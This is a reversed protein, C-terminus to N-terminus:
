LKVLFGISQNLDLLEIKTKSENAKDGRYILGLNFLFVIKEMGPVTIGIQPLNLVVSYSPNYTEEDDDSFEALVTFGIDITGYENKYLNLNLPSIGVRTKNIVVSTGRDLDKKETYSYNLLLDTHLQESGWYIRGTFCDTNYGVAFDFPYAATLPLFVSIFVLFLSCIQRNFKIFGKKLVL